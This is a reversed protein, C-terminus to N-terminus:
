APTLQADSWVGAMTESNGHSSVPRVSLVADHLGSLQPLDCTWNFPAGAKVIQEVAFVQFRDSSRELRFGFVLGGDDGAGAGRARLKASFRRLGDIAIAGHRVGAPPTGYANPRIRFSAADLARCAKRDPCNERSVIGDAAPVFFRYSKSAPGDHVVGDMAYGFAEMMPGCARRFIDQQSESWGTASLAIPADDDVARTQEPRRGSLVDCIGQRQEASLQLLTGVHEAVTESEAAM